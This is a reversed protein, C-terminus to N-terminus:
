IVSGSQEDSTLTPKLSDILMKRLEEVGEGSVASIALRGSGTRLVDAKNEVEIMPISPFNRKLSDLLALQKGLTYGSTETPDIVFVIIDALHKLALVAQREIDNREELRRDLLGPTDVVQYRQYRHEFHGIEIGQTTFPYPAVRPKASSLRGVLQSKGVNPFGAVVITPLEADITPLRRMEDRAHGVFDLDKSVQKVVSSIRGYYGKRVRELDDPRTVGKAKRIYEQRLSDVTKGCWSLAGLSKKLQDMGVLLDILEMAFEDRKEMSPFAKVYKQMTSSIIDGSATIRAVTTRRRAELKDDGEKEIKMVRKFAKDLVEDASM